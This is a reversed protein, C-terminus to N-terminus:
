VQSSSIGRFTASVEELRQITKDLYREWSFRSEVRRIAEQASKQWRGDQQDEQVLQMCSDAISGHSFPDVSLGGGCRQLTEMPGGHNSVVIPTGVRLSEVAVLGFPECFPVFICYRAKTIRSQAEEDSILGHLRVEGRIGLEKLLNQYGVSDTGKGWVDVPESLRGADKMRQLAKFVGFLNKTPLGSSIVVAGFPLEESKMEVSPALGLPLVESDIRFCDSFVAKSYDSNVFSHQPLMALKRELRRERYYRPRLQYKWGLRLTGKKEVLPHSADFANNRVASHIEKNAFKTFSKRSPEQCYWCIKGEARHSWALGFPNHAYVVDDDKFFGKLRNGTEMHRSWRNHINPVKIEEVLNDLGPCGQWIDADFSGTVLRVQLGRESLGHAAWAVVTEAGGKHSMNPYVLSVKM